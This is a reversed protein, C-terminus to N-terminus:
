RGDGATQRPDVAPELIAVRRVAVLVLGFEQLADVWSDVEIEAGLRRRGARPILLELDVPGAREENRVGALVIEPDGGRVADADVDIRGGVAGLLVREDIQPDARGHQTAAM